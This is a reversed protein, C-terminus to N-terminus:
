SFIYCHFTNLNPLTTRANSEFLLLSTTMLMMFTNDINIFCEPNWFWLLVPTLPVTVHCNFISNSFSTTSIIFNLCSDNKENSM